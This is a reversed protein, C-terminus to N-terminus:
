HGVSTRDRWRTASRGTPSLVSVGTPAVNKDRRGDTDGGLLGIAHATQKHFHIYMAMLNAVDEVSSPHTCALVVINRWFYYATSPRLGLKGILRLFARFTALRKRLPPRYKRSAQLVKGLELCRDFYNKREYVKRLVYVFDGIIEARPRKTTFNLGCTTQDISYGKSHELDHSSGNLRNERSLRRTLQTNPLAYLLGIMPICIKFQRVSDAIARARSSTENDFGIIFGGNVIIGYDYITHLDDYLSRKLNQTKQSSKLIEEDPSEIGVFVYRLDIARMLELLEHDDALNVSAETSFFFPHDHAESWATVAKLIDKARKKNGIFNDDVFDIHGRYGLQYLADLESLIQEASKTRPTRGFLEIVDCFECSYPCGRSFQVGVMLYDDFNVLDFRPVPSSAMDPRDPDPYYAGSEAGNALDSLFPLITREAEGLVLFDAKRYVDPQSTPDPGGVVVKKGHSHVRDILKLLEPQQPLMGGTFVLDAWDLDSDALARTNMDVLRIDWDQPLLAALTLLGLPAAPYKAGALQCVDRYNWFGYPSFEPHVLLAKKMDKAEV